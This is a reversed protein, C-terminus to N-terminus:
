RDYNCPLYDQKADINLSLKSKCLNLSYRFKFISKKNLKSPAAEKICREDLQAKPCEDPNFHLFEQYVKINLSFIGSCMNLSYNLKCLIFSMILFGSIQMYAEQMYYISLM